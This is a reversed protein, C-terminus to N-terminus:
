QSPPMDVRKAKERIPDYDADTLQEFDDVWAAKLV